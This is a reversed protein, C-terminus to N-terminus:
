RTQRHGGTRNERPQAADMKELFCLHNAVSWEVVEGHGKPAPLDKKEGDFRM